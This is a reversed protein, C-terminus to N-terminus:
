SRTHNAKSRLGMTTIGRSRFGSQFYPIDIMVKGDERDEVVRMGPNEDDDRKL